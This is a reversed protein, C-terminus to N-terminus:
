GVLRDGVVLPSLEPFRFDVTVSLHGVEDSGTGLVVGKVDVDTCTEGQVIKASSGVLVAGHQLVGVIVAVRARPLRHIAKIKLTFAPPEQAVPTSASIQRDLVEEELLLALLRDARLKEAVVTSDHPNLTNLRIRWARWESSPALQSPSDLFMM